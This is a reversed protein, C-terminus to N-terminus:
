PRMAADERWTLRDATSPPAIIAWLAPTTRSALDCPPMM